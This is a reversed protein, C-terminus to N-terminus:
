TFVCRFSFFVVSDVRLLVDLLLDNFIGGVHLCCGVCTVFLGVAVTPKVVDHPSSAYSDVRM